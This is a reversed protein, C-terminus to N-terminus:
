LKSELLITSKSTSYNYWMLSVGTVNTAFCFHYVKLINKVNQLPFNVEPPNQWLLQPPTAQLPASALRINHALIAIMVVTSYCSRKSKNEVKM